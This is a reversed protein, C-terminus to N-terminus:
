SGPLNKIDLIKLEHNPTLGLKTKIHDPGNFDPRGNIEFVQTKTEMIRSGYNKAVKYKIIYKGM